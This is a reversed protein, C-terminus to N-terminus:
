TMTRLMHDVYPKTQVFYTWSVMRDLGVEDTLLEVGDLQLNNIDRCTILRNDEEFNVCFFCLIGVNTLEKAVQWDHYCIFQGKVLLVIM